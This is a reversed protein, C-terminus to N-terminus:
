CSSGYNGGGRVIPKDQLMRESSVGFAQVKGINPLKGLPRSGRLKKNRPGRCGPRTTLHRPM